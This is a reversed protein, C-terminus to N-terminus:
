STPASFPTPTDPRPGPHFSADALLLMARAHCDLLCGCAAKGGGGWVCVRVEDGHVQLPQSGKQKVKRPKEAARFSSRNTVRNETYEAAM